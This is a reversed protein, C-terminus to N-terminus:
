FNVFSAVILNFHCVTVIVPYIYFLLLVAEMLIVGSEETTLLSFPTDFVVSFPGPNQTEGLLGLPFFNKVM